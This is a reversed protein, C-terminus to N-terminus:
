AAVISFHVVVGDCVLMSAPDGDVQARYETGEGVTRVPRWLLGVPALIELAMQPRGTELYLAGLIGLAPPPAGGADRLEELKAIAAPFDNNNMLELAETLLQPVEREQAWSGSPLLVFFCTLALGVRFSM